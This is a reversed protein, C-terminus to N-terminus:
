KPLKFGDRAWLIMLGMVFPVLWRFFSAKIEKWNSSTKDCDKLRHADLQNQTAFIKAELECSKAKINEIKLEIIENQKSLVKELEAFKTLFLEKLSDIQEKTTDMYSEKKVDM